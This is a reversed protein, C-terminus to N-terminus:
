KEEFSIEVKGLPGFDGVMTDGPAVPTLGTMTGTSVIDGARLPKGIRILENATWVLSQVPDGMVATGDGEAKIEGNIALSAKAAAFDVSRWDEVVPGTVLGANFSFDSGAMREGAGAVGGELRCGVIEVALQAHRTAALVEERGVGAETVGEAMVFAIECEVAPLHEPRVAVVCPAEWVFDALIAGLVPGTVGLREQSASSTAAVKWGAVAMGSAEIAQTQVAYADDLGGVAEFASRPVHGGDRRIQWIQTGLDAM